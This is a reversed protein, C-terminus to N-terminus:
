TSEATGASLATGAVFCVLGANCFRTGESADAEVCRLVWEFHLAKVETGAADAEVPEVNDGFVSTM